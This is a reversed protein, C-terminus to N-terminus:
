GLEGILAGPPRLGNLVDRLIPTGRLVSPIGGAYWPKGRKPSVYPIGPNVLLRGQGDVVPVGKPPCVFRAAADYDAVHQDLARLSRRSIPCRDSHRSGPPRDCLHCLLRSDSM